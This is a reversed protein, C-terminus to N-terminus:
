PYQPFLTSLKQHYSPDPIINLRAFEGFLKKAEENYAKTAEDENDFQGLYIRKSDKGITARWKRDKKNWCVGKYRSSTDAIPRQNHVNQARTCKRLNCRRNDLGYGNIHDIWKDKMIFSALPFGKTHTFAYYTHKSKKAYWRLKVIADFDEVDVLAVQGQTLNKYGIGDKIYGTPKRWLCKDFDGYKTWREYHMICWGKKLSGFKGCGEVRCNGKAKYRKRVEELYNTIPTM